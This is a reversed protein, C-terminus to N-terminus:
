VRSLNLGNSTAKNVYVRATFDYTNGIYSLQYLARRKLPHDHTRSGGNTVSLELEMINAWTAWNTLAATKHAAPRSISVRRSCKRYSLARERRLAPNLDRHMVQTNFQYPSKDSNTLSASKLDAPRKGAHTRIGCDGHKNLKTNMCNCCFEM